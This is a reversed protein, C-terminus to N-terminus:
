ARVARLNELIPSIPAKQVPSPTGPAKPATFDLLVSKETRLPWILLHPASRVEKVLTALPAHCASLRVLQQSM